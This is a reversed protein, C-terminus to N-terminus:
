YGFALGVRVGAFFGSIAAIRRDDAFLEAGAITVGTEIEASFAWRDLWFRTGARLSALAMPRGAALALRPDVPVGVARAYGAEFHPGIEFDPQAGSTALLSVGGTYLAVRVEGLVDQVSTWGGTAEARLRLWEPGLRFGAGVNAGALSTSEPAFFRFVGAARVDNDYRAAAVRPALNAPRDAERHDSADDGRRDLTRPPESIKTSETEGISPPDSVANELAGESATKNQAARVLEATTLALARLRADPPTDALDITKIARLGGHVLAVKIERADADCIAGDTEITIAHAPAPADQFLLIGASTLETALLQAFRNGRAM